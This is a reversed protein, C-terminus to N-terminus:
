AQIHPLVAVLSVLKYTSDVKPTKCHLLSFSNNKATNKVPLSLHSSFLVQLDAIMTFRQVDKICNKEKLEGM